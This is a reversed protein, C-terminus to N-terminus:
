PTTAKGAAPRAAAAGAPDADVLAAFLAIARSSALFFKPDIRVVDDTPQHYDPHDEVGFYVFPFGSRM